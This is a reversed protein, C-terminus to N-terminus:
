GQAGGGLEAPLLKQTVASDIKFEAGGTYCKNGRAAKAARGGRRVRVRERRGEGLAGGVPRL